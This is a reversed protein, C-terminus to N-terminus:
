ALINQHATNTATKEPAQIRGALYRSLIDITAEFGRCVEVCNGRKRLAEHWERQRDSVKGGEAKLELYLANFGGRGLPLCMDPFGARLGEARMYSALAYSRKGSNPIAFLLRLEPHVGSQLEAWRFVQSQIVHESTRIAKSSIEM